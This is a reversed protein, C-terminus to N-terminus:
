CDPHFAFKEFMFHVKMKLECRKSENIEREGLMEAAIIFSAVGKVNQKFIEEM